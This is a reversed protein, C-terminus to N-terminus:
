RPRRLMPFMPPTAGAQITGLLEFGHREYLPVNKPSTSELYALARDSDCAALTHRLLTSGVGQGQRTADVGMLALYWHPEEPHYRSMQELIGFTDAQKKQEVGQELAAVIPAEDLHVNPPLWLAAGAYGDAYYVTESGFSSAAFASLFVPFHTLYARPDPWLWRELPDASFALVLLDIIQQKDSATATHIRGTPV